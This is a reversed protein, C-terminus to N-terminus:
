QRSGGYVGRRAATARLDGPRGQGRRRDPHACSGMGWEAVPFDGCGGAIQGLGNGAAGRIRRSDAANLLAAVALVVGPRIGDPNRKVARGKGGVSRRAPSLRRRREAIGGRHQVGDSAASRERTAASTNGACM